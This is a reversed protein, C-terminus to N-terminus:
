VNKQTNGSLDWQGEPLSKCFSPFDGNSPKWLHRTRWFPHNILSFGMLISFWWKQISVDVIFSWKWHIFWWKQRVVEWPSLDGRQRSRLKRWCGMWMPSVTTNWGYGSTSTPVLPKWSTMSFIGLITMKYPFIGDLFSSQPSIKLFGGNLRFTMFLLFNGYINGLNFLPSFVEAKKTIFM